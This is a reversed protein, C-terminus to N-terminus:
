KRVLSRFLALHRDAIRAWDYGRATRRATEGLRRRLDRDGALVLIAEAIAGPDAGGAVWGSAGHRIYDMPGRCPTTVVPLGCSMAELLPMCFGENLSPQVYLDWSPYLGRVDDVHGLWRVKRGLKRDEAVRELAPREPGRGAIALRLDPRVAVAAAFAELLAAYNKVPSLAGVSGIRLVDGEAAAAEEEGPAEDHRPFAANPIMTIQAAAIGQDAYHRAVASSVAIFADARRQRSASHFGHLSAIVPAKTIPRLRTFRAAARGFHTHVVDFSRRTAVDLISRWTLRPPALMEAEEGRARFERVLREAILRTSGEHPAVELISLRGM